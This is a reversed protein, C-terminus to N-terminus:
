KKFFSGHLANRRQQVSPERKLTDNQSSKYMKFSKISKFPNFKSHNSKISDESTSHKSLTSGLHFSSSSVWSSISGRKQRKEEGMPNEYPEQELLFPNTNESASPPPPSSSSPSSHSEFPNTNTSIPPSHTEPSHSQQLPNTNTYLQFNESAASHPPTHLTDMSPPPLALKTVISPVHEMNRRAKISPILEIQEETESLCSKQKDDLIWQPKELELPFSYGPPLRYSWFKLDTRFQDIAFQWDDAEEGLQGSARYFSADPISDLKWDNEKIAPRLVLCDELFLIDEDDQGISPDSKLKELKQQASQIRRCYIDDEIQATLSNGNEPDFQHRNKMQSTIDFQILHISLQGGNTISYYTGPRSLSAKMSIVPGKSERMQPFRQKGWQAICLAGSLLKASRQITINEDSDNWADTRWPKADNYKYHQDKICWVNRQDRERVIPLTDQHSYQTIRYHTDWAPFSEPSLSWYRMWGDSSTTGINEPRVNSWAISHISGINGDIKAVPCHRSARMDWINVISDEGASALWYPIFPNFQADQIPRDHAQNVSWVPQDKIRSDVVFLTRDYGGSAVLTQHPSWRAFQLPSQCICDYSQVIEESYWLNLQNMMTCSFLSTNM